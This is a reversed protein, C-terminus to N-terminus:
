RVHWGGLASEMQEKYKNAMEKIIMNNNLMPSSNFQYMQGKSDAVGVGYTFYVYKGYRSYGINRKVSYMPFFDVSNNTVNLFALLRNKSPNVCDTEGIGCLGKPGNVNYAYNLIYDAEAKTYRAIVYYENIGNHKPQIVYGGKVGKMEELSLKKVGPSTDSLAGHSVKALFDEAFAFNVLLFLALLVFIKKM